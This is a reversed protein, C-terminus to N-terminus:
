QRVFTTPTATHSDTNKIHWNWPWTRVLSQANRKRQAKEAKKLQDKTQLLFPGVLKTSATDHLLKFAVQKDRLVEYDLLNILISKGMIENLPIEIRDYGITYISLLINEYHEAPLNDLQAIGISDTSYSYSIRDSLKDKLYLNCFQVPQRSSEVKIHVQSANPLNNLIKFSSCHENLPKETTLLISDNQIKYKGYGYLDVLLCCGYSTKFEITTDTVLVYNNDSVYKGSLLMNQGYAINFTLFLLTLIHRM